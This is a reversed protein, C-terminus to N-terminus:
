RCFPFKLTPIQWFSQFFNFHLLVAEKMQSIIEQFIQAMKMMLKWLKKVSVINIIYSEMFFCTTNEFKRNFFRFFKLNKNQNRSEDCFTLFLAVYM